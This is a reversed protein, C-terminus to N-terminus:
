VGSGTTLTTLITEVDGILDYVCKASPYQTDTSSNSLSTVKNTKDEKGSIDQHSTIVTGLDAEGSTSITSGNMKVSTITGTNTTYGAGNTLDSTDTPVTINITKDVSANATFTDITTSNKQITLTANNVTPITPKNKIYDDKTDDAENWDSQVNVEAGAEIGSLKTKETSTVFKNTTTTDDVLDANLKHSSDIKTQYGSLDVDTSGIHEWNNSVYIYEDYADNTGATSKPVLYITSTSIDQTPLTEVVQLKLGSVTGILSNIEAQTYTESKKYYNVLNNVANTIFGSDNNLDSTKTPVNISINGSGLLSNNNITKINTGSILTDQKGTLDINAIKNTVVSTGNVKVDDVNGGATSSIVNNEITINNGATYQIVGDRGDVGDKGDKGDQGKQGDLGDYIITQETTGDKKTITITTQKGVKVATIDMEEVNDIMEQIQAIYIEWETPTPVDQSNIAEIEGAGKVLVLPKLETSIQYIKKENEITYGVFGIFCKEAYERDIYIKNDIISKEIGKTDGNKVFIAKITLDNWSNDYEVDIEYYNISGSNYKINNEINLKDKNLIFKM